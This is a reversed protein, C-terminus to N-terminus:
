FLSDSIIWQLNNQNDHYLSLITRINVLTLSSIMIAEFILFVPRSETLEENSMLYHNTCVFFEEFNM